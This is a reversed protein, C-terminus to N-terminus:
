SVTAALMMYDEALIKRVMIVRVYARLSCALSALVLSCTQIIFFRTGGPNVDFGLTRPAMEPLSSACAFVRFVVTYALM